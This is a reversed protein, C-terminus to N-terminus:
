KNKGRFTQKHWHRFKPVAIVVRADKQQANPYVLFEQKCGVRGGVIEYRSANNIHSEAHTHGFGGCSECRVIVEQAKTIRTQERLRAGRKRAQKRLNNRLVVVEEPLEM